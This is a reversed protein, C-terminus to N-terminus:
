THQIIIVEVGSFRSELDGALKVCGCSLALKSKKNEFHEDALAKSAADAQYVRSKVREAVEKSGRKYQIEDGNQAPVDVRYHGAKDIIVKM